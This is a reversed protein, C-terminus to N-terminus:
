VNGYILSMDYDGSIGNNPTKVEGFTIKDKIATNFKWKSIDGNFKSERFMNEMDTVNSVNWNSIDGNFKSGFFMYCMNTVKSVDWNSIDGNFNSNYFLGEMDTLNSVDWTNSDGYIKICEEHNSCYLEIANILGQKSNFVFSSM